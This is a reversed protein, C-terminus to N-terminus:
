RMSESNLFDALFNRYEEVLMGLALTLLKARLERESVAVGEEYDKEVAAIQRQLLLAREELEALIDHMRSKGGFRTLILSGDDM